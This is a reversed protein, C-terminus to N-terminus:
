GKYREDYRSAFIAVCGERLDEFKTFEPAICDVGEPPLAM